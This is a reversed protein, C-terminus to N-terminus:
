NFNLKLGFTFTKMPKIERILYDPDFEKNASWILGLDRAQIFININNFLTQSGLIPGPLDYGFYVENLRLHDGKRYFNEASSVLNSMYMWTSGTNFVDKNAENFLPMVTYKSQKDYGESHVSRM